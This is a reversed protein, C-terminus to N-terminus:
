RALIVKQVAQWRAARIRVFYLGSSVPQGLENRGDWILEHRGAPYASRALLRVRRGRTDYVVVTVKALEPLDFRLRTEPNFPNPFAPHLRFALTQGADEIAIDRLTVTRNEIDVDLEVEALPRDPLRDTPEAFKGMRPLEADLALIRYRVKFRKRDPNAIEIRRYGSTEKRKLLFDPGLFRTYNYYAGVRDGGGDANLFRINKSKSRIKRIRGILPPIITEHRKNYIAAEVSFIAKDEDWHPNRFVVKAGHKIVDVEGETFLRFGIFSSGDARYGPSFRAGFTQALETHPRFPGVIEPDRNLSQAAGAEDGYVIREVLGGSPNLVEIAGGAPFLLLAGGSALIVKNQVGAFGFYGQPEGGGFVVVAEGPEIVTGEPFTHRLEGDIRLEYGSVDLREGTRNALEVFQDDLADTRGDGNADTQFDADPDAFFENVVLDYDALDQRSRPLLVYHSDPPADPDNQDVIAVLSFLGQPPASGGIDTDADIWLVLERGDRDVAVVEGDEGMAPFVAGDALRLGALFALQGQVAEGIKDATIPRPPVPLSTRDLLRIDTVSGPVLRESGNLQELTGTVDLWDGPTLPDVPQQFVVRIGGTSDQVFFDFGTDGAFNISIVQGQIRVREGLRDPVFDGDADSKVTAISMVAPQVTITIREEDAGDHSDEVRFLVDMFAGPADPVWTFTRGVFVAGPPLNDASFVLSDGDKDTASVTFELLEGVTAMKDGIPALVPPHNTEIFPTGDVRTGPSFFAGGAEPIETHKFFDGTVDPYRTISQNDNAEGGYIKSAVVTSFANRLLIEDGTNNLGLRGTSATQVLAGGFNGTPTGGGFVVIAGGAPLRTGDAFIHRVGVADSITWGSMDVAMTDANVLEIFEDQTASRTGDSNADGAPGSPPDALIENIVVRVTQAFLSPPLLSLMAAALGTALIARRTSSSKWM